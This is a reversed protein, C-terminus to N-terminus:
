ASDQPSQTTSKTPRALHPRPHPHQRRQHQWPLGSAPGSKEVTPTEIEAQQHGIQHQVQTARQEPCEIRLGASIQAQVPKMGRHIEAHIANLRLRPHWHLRQLIRLTIEARQHVRQEGGRRFQLGREPRQIGAAMTKAIHSIGGMETLGELGIKGAGRIPRRGITWHQNENTGNIGVLEIEGHELGQHLSGGMPSIEEDTRHPLGIGASVDAGPLAKGMHMLQARPGVGTEGCIEGMGIHRQQRQLDVVVGTM